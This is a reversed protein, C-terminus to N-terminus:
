ELTRALSLTPSWPSPGPIPKHFQRLCRGRTTSVPGSIVYPNAIATSAAAFEVTGGNTVTITGTGLASTTMTEVTGQNVHVPGTLGTNSGSLVLTGDGYKNWGSSGALLASITNTTGGTDIIGNPLTLTEVGTANAIVMSGTLNTFYLDGANINQTLTVTGAAGSFIADDNNANTWAVDAVINTNFWVASSTDWNGTGGLSVGGTASPDRSLPAASLIFSTFVLPVCFAIKKLSKM